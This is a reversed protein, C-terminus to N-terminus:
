LSPIVGSRHTSAPTELVIRAPSGVEHGPAIVFTVTNHNLSLASSTAFYSTGAKIDAEKTWGPMTPERDFYSDDFIVDGKVQQLGQLKLDLILKWLREVVMTPDGHGQVYLNGQLVGAQDFPADAYVATPYRYAPGLTRLAVAATLVKMTSAPVMPVDAAHGFVRAGTEVDVVEAGLKAARFVKDSAVPALLAQIDLVPAATPTPPRDEAVSPSAAFILALFLARLAASATM